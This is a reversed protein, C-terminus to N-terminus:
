LGGVDLKERAQFKKAQVLHDSPPLRRKEKTNPNRM